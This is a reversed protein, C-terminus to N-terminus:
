HPISYKSVKCPITTNFENMKYNLAREVDDYMLVNITNPLFVLLLKVWDKQPKQHLVKNLPKDKTLPNTVVGQPLQLCQQPIM